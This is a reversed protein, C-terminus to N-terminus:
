CIHLLRYNPAISHTAPEVVVDASFGAVGVEQVVVDELEFDVLGETGVFIEDRHVNV